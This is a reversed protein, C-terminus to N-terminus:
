EDFPVYELDAPPDGAYLFRGILNVYDTWRKGLAHAKNIERTFAAMQSDTYDICHLLLAELTMPHRPSDPAKDGHHSLVLHRLLTGKERPFGEIADIARTIIEDAITIHGLLRGEDSYGIATKYEYEVTKGLDHLAAGALVLDRNVNRYHRCLFDAIEMMSVTHELLGGLYAHHWQKAGPAQMFPGFVAEDEMFALLLARYHEDTFSEVLERFRAAIAAPDGNVSPLFRAPDIAELDTVKELAHVQVQRVGQYNGVKGRVNVIDGVNLRVYIQEAGDWLVGRIKGTRDGLKLSMFKGNQYERLECGALAYIGKVSDGERMAIVDLHDDGRASDTESAAEAPPAPKRKKRPSAASDTEFEPIESGFLDAM